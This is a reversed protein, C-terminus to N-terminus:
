ILKNVLDMYEKQRSDLVEQSKAEFRLTIAPSTNSKRILAFGDSYEIRVGDVLNTEYGKNIAYEKVKNVVSEKINDSVKIRIEETSYYKPMDKILLSAQINKKEILEAMRLGAYLGDDFGFFKDRFFIHGSYEGGLLSPEDRCVTEIYASGNKVMIPKGGIKKIAEEVGKSCKVDIIINKNDNEKVIDEAFIAILYDTSIINGKNDVIGVRDADGDFAIGLDFDRLKVADILWKLNASVNPDPNHVPFSGDSDSNIYSVCKFIKSYVDKVVVSATGNGCDVVIKKNIKGFKKVLMDIYNNTIIEKTLVGSGTTEKKSGIYGYLKELEDSRLHLHDKGFIKIGNDEKDNHSATIMLGYSINKIITAYNLMPTTVLGIDIVNIGSELLAGILSKNLSESSLRNDHGVICKDYNNEKLYYGFARGFVRISEENIELPYKGRIDNERLINEKM